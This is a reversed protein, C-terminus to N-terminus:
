DESESRIEELYESTSLDGTIDPASGFFRELDGKEYPPASEIKELTIEEVKRAIRSLKMTGSVFVAQDRVGLLSVVKQYYDPAFSCKIRNGTSLERIFFRDKRDDDKTLAVIIGQISGYIEITDNLVHRIEEARKPSLTRWDPTGNGNRCIGFDLEEGTDLASAIKTYQWITASSVEELGTKPIEDLRLETIGDLSGNFREISREDSVTAHEIDYAVSGSEEFHVAIWERSSEIVKLDQGLDSLFRETEANIKSLKHLPVGRRGKNLLIKIRLTAM